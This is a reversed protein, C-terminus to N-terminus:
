LSIEGTEPNRRYIGCLTQSGKIVWMASCAANLVLGCSRRDYRKGLTRLAKGALKEREDLLLPLGNYKGFELPIRVSEGQENQVEYDEGHEDQEYPILTFNQM